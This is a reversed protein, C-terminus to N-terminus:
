HRRNKFIDNYLANVDRQIEDDSYHKNEDQVRSMILYLQIFYNDSRKLFRKDKPPNYLLIDTIKLMKKITENTDDLEDYRSPRKLPKRIM